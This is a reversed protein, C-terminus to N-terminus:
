TTIILNYSLKLAVTIDDDILVCQANLDSLFWSISCLHILHSGILLPYLLDFSSEHVNNNLLAREVYDFYCCLRYLKM